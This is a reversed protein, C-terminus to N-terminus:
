LITMFYSILVEKMDPKLYLTMVTPLVDIFGFKKMLM